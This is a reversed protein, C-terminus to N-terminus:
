SGSSQFPLLLYESLTRPEPVNELGVAPWEDKRPFYATGFASDWITSFNGFNRDFHQPDTSHHLRHFRNDCFLYRLPGLSLKTSSHIFYGQVRLLGVVAVPVLATDAGVMLVWPLMVFPIQLLGDGIHSYSSWGSLARISHHVRHIRWLLPFHHLARHLWYFFFDGVLSSALLGAIAALVLGAEGFPMTLGSPSLRVLPQIHLAGILALFTAASVITVAGGTAWFLASKLRSRISCVGAPWVLELGFCFTCGLCLQVYSDGIGRLITPFLATM